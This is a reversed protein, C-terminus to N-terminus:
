QAGLSLAARELGMAYVSLFDLEHALASVSRADLCLVSALVLTSGLMSDSRVDLLLVVTVLGTVRGSLADLAPARQSELPADWRCVKWRASPRGM